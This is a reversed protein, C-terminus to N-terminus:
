PRAPVAMDPKGYGPERATPPGSGVFHSIPELTTPSGSGTRDALERLHRPVSRRPLWGLSQARDARDVGSIRYVQRLRETM